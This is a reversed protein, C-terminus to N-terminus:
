ARSRMSRRIATAIETPRRRAQNYPPLPMHGKSSPTQLSAADATRLRVRVGDTPLPSELVELHLPPVDESCSYRARAKLKQVPHM